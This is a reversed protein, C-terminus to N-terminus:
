LIVGNKLENEIMDLESSTATDFGELHIEGVKTYGSLDSLSLNENTARGKLAPNVDRVNTPYEITLLIKKDVQLSDLFGSGGKYGKMRDVNNSMMNTAFGGLLQIGQPTAVGGKGMNATIGTGLSILSLVNNRKQEQANTKGLPIEVGMQASRTEYLYTGDIYIYLTAHNNIIDVSLYGEIDHGYAIEPNINISEFFPVDLTMKTYPEFDLFNNFRRQPSITFWYKLAPNNNDPRRITYMYPYSTFTKKGLHLDGATSLSFLKSIAFPYYLFKVIYDSNEQFFDAIGYGNLTGDIIDKQLALMYSTDMAYGWSNYTNYPFYNKIESM